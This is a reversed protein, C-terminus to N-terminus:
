RRIHKELAEIVIGPTLAQPLIVPPTAPDGTYLVYLPVAARNFEKLGQAVEDNQDTWDAMLVTVGLDRFKAAVDKNEIAVRKNVQCIACWDATFDVFVPKGQSVLEAVAKPSWSQFEIESKRLATRTGQIILLFAVIRAIWRSTNSRHLAGWKGFVWAGIGVLVCGFLLQILADIGGNLKAFTGAFWAATALMPFGMLQKMTEMWAGPKPIFKLLGPFSSLIAYPAATGLGMATFALLAVATSQSLAFGIATGLFPGACPAGAVTTLLGSFFSGALGKRAHLSGGVSTLALGMEFVGFMNLGLILFLFILGLVFRPDSMQFAWGVQSGQGRLSLLVAALIWMSVMVGATFAAAHKTAHGHGERAQEVFGVIKLSLVPFVCPMLNLIMGGLFMLLLGSWLTLTSAAPTPAPSATESAAAVPVDVEIGTTNDLGTVVGRLATLTSTAANSRQMTLLYADGDKKWSQAAAYEIADQDQPFFYVKDSAPQVGAPPVARLVVTNGSTSVDFKWPSNQIPLRARATEFIKQASDNAAPAAADVPLALKFNAKGPVCQDKCMLWTAKASLDVTAGPVLGAPAKIEVLLYIEDIYGYSVLPPEEIRSPTPWVIPGAEFGEPLTWKLKTGLGSDGANVWYTHWHPDMKLRLAVWFSAGPQISKVESVLEAEVAGDRVPAAHVPMALIAVLITLCTIFRKLM